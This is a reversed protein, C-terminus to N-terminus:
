RIVVLPITRNKGLREMIRGGLMADEVQRWMYKDILCVEEIPARVSVLLTMCVGDHGSEPKGSHEVSLLGHPKHPPLDHGLIETLYKRLTSHLSRLPHLQCSPLHSASRESTLIHTQPSDRRRALIVLRLLLRKHPRLAPLQSFLRTITISHWQQQQQNNNKYFETINDSSYRTSQIM